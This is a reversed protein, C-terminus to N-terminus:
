QRYDNCTCQIADIFDHQFFSGRNRSLMIATAIVNQM